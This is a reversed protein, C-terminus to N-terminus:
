YVSTLQIHNFIYCNFRRIINFTNIKYEILYVSLMILNKICNIPYEYLALITLM